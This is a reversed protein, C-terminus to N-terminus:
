GEASDDDDASDDDASDDDSAAPDDLPVPDIWQIFALAASLAVIAGVALARRSRTM